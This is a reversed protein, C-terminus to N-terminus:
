KLMDNEDVDMTRIAEVCEKPAILRLNFSDTWEPVGLLLGLAHLCSMHKVSAHACELLMQKSKTHGVVHSLAELFVANAVRHGIVLPITTLCNLVFTIIREYKSEDVLM